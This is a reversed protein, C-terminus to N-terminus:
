GDGAKAQSSWGGGLAKYLAILNQIVQGQSSALLDQQQFLFRQADLVNQFDTLGARYQTDVLEVARESAAVAEALLDRRRGELSYAVLSNEVEEFAFLLTREYAVLAQRTRAQEVDILSRVRGGDFLNWRFPLSIGWSSSDSDVLDDIKTAEFAFFGSLSFRPYLDATSVGIQATQAALLREARRLDPRQRLLDAPVGAGPAGVPAPIGTPATLEDDLAGPPEGLLVALRNLAFRLAIELAPIVAETNKLNSEAQAVDLGSTAGADHRDRTMVFTAQQAEVNAEAYAIRTQLERVEVYNRAVEAFLTVLVDRYDEVSAEYAAGASEVSRRIRGFLDIEWSADFGVNYLGVSDLGDPFLGGLTGNDSQESESAFGGADLDPMRRGRAVGLRARTESIRATAAELDLNASEARRILDELTPDGLGSWWTQLNAEGEALGEIASVRWTDPVSLDPPTYDPGVTCGALGLLLVPALARLRSM